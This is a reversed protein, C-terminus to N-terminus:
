KMPKFDIRVKTWMKAPRGDISGPTFLIKKATEIAASVCRNSEDSGMSSIKLIRGQEDVLIRLDISNGLCQKASKSDPWYLERPKPPLFIKPKSSSPPLPNQDYSPVRDLGSHKELESIRKDPNESKLPQARKESQLIPEPFRNQDDEIDVPITIIADPHFSTEMSSINEVAIKKTFLSLYPKKFLTLLLIHVIFVIAIFILWLRTSVRIKM